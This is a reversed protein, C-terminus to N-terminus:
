SDMVKLLSTDGYLLFTLIGLRRREEPNHFLKTFFLFHAEVSLIAQCLECIQEEAANRYDSLEDALGQDILRELMEILGWTQIFPIVPHELFRQYVQEFGEVNLDGVILPSTDPLPARCCSAVTGDPQIIPGVANCVLKHQQTLRIGPFELERARGLKVIGGTKIQVDDLTHQGLERQLTSKVQAASRGRTLYTLSITPSIGGEKAAHLVRAVNALPIYEQHYQDTSV